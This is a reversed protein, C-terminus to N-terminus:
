LVRQNIPLVHISGTGPLAFGLLLVFVAHPRSSIHEHLSESHSLLSVKM